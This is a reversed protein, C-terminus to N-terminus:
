RLRNGKLLGQGMASVEKRSSQLTSIRGLKKTSGIKNVKEGRQFKPMQNNFSVQYMTERINSALRRRTADIRSVSQNSFKLVDRESLTRGTISFPKHQSHRMVVSPASQIIPKKGSTLYTALEYFIYALTRNGIFGKHKKVPGLGEELFKIYNAILLNYQIRILKSTNSALSVASRANGSDYPTNVVALNWFWYGLSTDLDKIKDFEDLTLYIDIDM